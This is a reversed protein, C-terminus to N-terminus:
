RARPNGEKYYFRKSSNLLDKNYLWVIDSKLNQQWSSFMENIGCNGTNNCSFRFLIYNLGTSYM